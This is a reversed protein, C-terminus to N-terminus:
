NEEQQRRIQVRLEKELVVDAQVSQHKRDPLYHVL